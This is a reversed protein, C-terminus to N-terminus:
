AWAKKLLWSKVAQTLAMYCTLTLFLFVWYLPPLAVFGLAAALPSFPLVVGLGIILVTTITLPWSARSQLFPIKNTRIVHIILTQTLLSEVFWGTRFLSAHAPDRAGFIFFMVLYTLYDFISSCPGILLIFRTIENMSWPRPRLIQEPDVDDTPIAVQSFDYLLNNTLIQIPAMPVFPLFASAGVVSFMNGFSSSAGMRIYKLINAFVKRGELLGDELVLLSKELLVLDASEKAIDVASDVSIGVDATRLAPADNIGDGLFGVVHKKSQLAAIIRQKHTPALRAFLTTREVVGALENDDMAEIQSGLLVHDTPIGVERCIKKSVLDNDGTLVKVAVGHQGLALIAPAATDKPPDFFAVYGRLVLESEDAKSYAPKRDLDRYAIALVRFGDSSLRRYEEKLDEILVTEMPLIEGQYEFQTCRKFIEEPAGKCILRSQGEPTEVVVSMLRRAFDFPIEDLKRHEPVHFQDHIEEKHALVARDLINRLGTQFHSNLYALMLVDEDDELQVDCHRELVVHDMTLTGTKDTCLVDMAGLNQISNLRKVIVKKRSMALAGKSLCVTVIMPLMEPTMGVAVALAFFFAEHWNHKTLGNIVFVLPVMVLMFRIMLWTFRAVGKDFSTEVRQGMIAKAMGGLYTQGGTGVVLGTATGSEVSTGLFCINKGELPSAPAVTERADFKEVPLSEGTLSAQIVFLDKGSLLRLDAPIMDGAALRVIDGPVLESLPIERAQGGRVVTATVRIMAKLKAAATDAKVEQVFRLAVGLVVMSLMVIAARLDGTLASVAALLSLLIVLPNLLAKVLLERGTHREEQAVANPGFQELRREAEEQSLGGLETGMAALLKDTESTAVGGLRQSLGAAVANRGPLGLRKPLISPLSFLKRM